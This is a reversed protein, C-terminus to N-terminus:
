INVQRASYKKPCAGIEELAARANPAIPEGKLAAVGASQARADLGKDEALANFLAEAV